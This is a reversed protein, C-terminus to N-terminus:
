DHSCSAAVVSQIPIQDELESLETSKFSDIQTCLARTMTAMQYEIFAQLLYEFDSVRILSIAM